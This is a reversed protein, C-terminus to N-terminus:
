QGVPSTHSFHDVSIHFDNCMKEHMFMENNYIRLHLSSSNEKLEM